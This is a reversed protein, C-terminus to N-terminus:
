AIVPIKNQLPPSTTLLTYAVECPSERLPGKLTAILSSLDDCLARMRYTLALIGGWAFAFPPM